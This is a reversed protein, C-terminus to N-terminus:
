RIERLKASALRWSLQEPTAGPVDNVRRLVYRGAFRQQRGDKLTADIRVPIAVFVSGAGADGDTPAGAIVKTRATRAFGRVFAEYSQGSARGGGSWLRYASRHDGRNIAAYYRRVVARAAEPSRDIPQATAVQVAAALALLIM